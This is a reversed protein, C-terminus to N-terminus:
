KNVILKKTAVIKDNVMLSYFYIGDSFEETNINIKGSEDEVRVEKVLGGMCNYVRLKAKSAIPFDYKITTSTTAPNPFANSFNFLKVDGETINVGTSFYHAIYNVSDSNNANDYFTYRVVREGLNMNPKFTSHFGIGTGGFSATDGAAINVVGLAQVLAWNPQLCVNWCVEVTDLPAIVSVGSVFTRKVKYGKSISSTNKVNLEKIINDGPGGWFNVSTNTVDADGNDPDLLQISSQATASYTLILSSVIIFFSKM